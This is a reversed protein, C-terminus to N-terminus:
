YKLGSIKFILFGDKLGDKGWEYEYQPKKPWGEPSDNIGAAIVGESTEIGTVKIELITESSSLGYLNSTILIFISIFYFLIHRM